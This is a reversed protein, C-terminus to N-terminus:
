DGKTQFRGDLLRLVKPSDLGNIKLFVWKYIRTEEHNSECQEPHAPIGCLSM